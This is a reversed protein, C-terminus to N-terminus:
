SRQTLAALVAAVHSEDGLLEDHVAAIAQEADVLYTVRKNVGVLPIRAKYAKAVSGDVDALLEFPLQHEQKFRAHTDLNDRSVGFVPVELERLHEFQDRFSCAQKTCVSTFDKPYFYLVFPKGKLDELSVFGGGTSELRFGPAKDGIKLSMGLSSRVGGAGAKVREFIFFFRLCAM